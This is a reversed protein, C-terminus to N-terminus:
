KGKAPDYESLFEEETMIWTTGDPKTVVYEGSYIYNRNISNLVWGWGPNQVITHMYKNRHNLPLAEPVAWLQITKGKFREEYYGYDSEDEHNIRTMCIVNPVQTGTIWQHAEVIQPKRLYTAM